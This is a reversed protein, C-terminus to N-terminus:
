SCDSLASAASTTLGSPERKPCRTRKGGAASVLATEAPAPEPDFHSSSLTLLDLGNRGVFRVEIFSHAVKRSL